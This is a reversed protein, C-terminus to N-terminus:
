ALLLAVAVGLFLEGDRLADLDLDLVSIDNNLTLACNSVSYLVISIIHSPGRTLWARYCSWSSGNRVSRLALEGLRETVQRDAECM